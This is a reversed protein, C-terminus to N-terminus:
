MAHTGPTGPGNLRVGYEGRIWIQHVFQCAWIWEEQATADLAQWAWMAHRTSRGRYMLVPKAALVERVKNRASPDRQELDELLADWLADRWRLAQELALQIKTCRELRSSLSDDGRQMTSGM